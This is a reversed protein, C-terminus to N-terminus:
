PKWLTVPFAGETDEDASWDVFWGGHARIECTAWRKQLRDVFMEYAKGVPAGQMWLSEGIADREVANFAAAMRRNVDHGLAFMDGDEGTCAVYVGYHNPMTKTLVEPYDNM